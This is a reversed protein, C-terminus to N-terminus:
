GRDLTPLDSQRLMMLGSRGDQGSVRPPEAREEEPGCEGKGLAGRAEVWLQLKELSPSKIYERGGDRQTRSNIFCFFNPLSDLGVSSLASLRAEAGNRGSRSGLKVETAERTFM